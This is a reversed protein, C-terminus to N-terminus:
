AGTWQTAVWAGAVVAILAGCITLAINLVASGPEGSHFLRMTDLSFASLTTFSGLFGTVLLLYLPSGAIGRSLLLTALFGAVFAGSLNATLTGYPFRIDPSSLLLFVGYRACAGLAGGLAVFLFGAATNM